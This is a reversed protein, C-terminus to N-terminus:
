DEEMQILYDNPLNKLEFWENDHLKLKLISIRTEGNFATWTSFNWVMGSIVNGSELTVHMIKGHDNLCLEGATKQIM